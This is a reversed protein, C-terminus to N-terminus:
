IWSLKFLVADSATEFRIAYWSHCFHTQRAHPNEMIVKELFIDTYVARPKIDREECWSVIEEWTWRKGPYYRELWNSLPKGPKLESVQVLLPNTLNFSYKCDEGNRKYAIYRESM